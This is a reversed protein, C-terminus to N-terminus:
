NKQNASTKKKGEQTADLLKERLVILQKEKAELDDTLQQIVDNKKQIRTRRASAPTSGNSELYIETLISEKLAEVRLDKSQLDLKLLKLEERLGMIESGRRDFESLKSLLLLYKKKMETFEEEKVQLRKQLTENEVITASLQHDKTKVMANLKFLQDDKMKQVMKEPDENLVQESGQPWLQFDQLETPHTTTSWFPQSLVLPENLEM